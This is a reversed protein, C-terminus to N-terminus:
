VRIDLGGGTGALRGYSRQTTEISALQDDPVVLRAMHSAPQGSQDRGAFTQDRLSFQLGNDSTKLGAQQFARELNPADRRLLDLTEARDVVLHSTVTGDHDLDLRVNIRGLEPPDLRIEFRNKGTQARAAIEVALGTLPVAV